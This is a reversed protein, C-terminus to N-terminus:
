SRKTAVFVGTDVSFSGNEEIEFYQRVESSAARQLSQIAAVHCESTRTRAIWAAFELRLRALTIQDIVFGAAGLMHAWESVRANRVHSPDRLLEISQLWTDPLSASPAIVDSFLALGGPKLVRYMQRLGAAMDQWHHASYRTIVVDFADSPCSLHEAAGRKTLINALGRRSAEAAVTELMKQSLDYAVVQSVCPAVRFSVHGGGCGMDLVVAEPQRGIRDAILDLDAGAAHVSSALYAHARTDYEHQLLDKHDVESMDPETPMTLLAWQQRGNNSTCSM